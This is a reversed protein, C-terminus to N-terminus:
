LDAFGLQARAEVFEPKELVPDAYINRRIFFEMLLGEDPLPDDAARRLWELASAGEGVSLSALAHTAAGLPYETDIAELRDVIQQADERHGSVGYFEALSALLFTNTSEPGLLTEAIRLEAVATEPNGVTAEIQGLFSHSYPEDPILAIGERFRGLAEEYEGAWSLHLGLIFHGWGPALETLRRALRVGDDLRDSKLGSFNAYDILMDRENPSLEYAREYAEAAEAQRLYSEHVRALASYALGVTPDLELAREAHESALGARESRTPREESRLLGSITTAYLLAKYAHAHAFNPDLEIAQGLDRHMAAMLAPETSPAPDDVTTIARLYLAYAAPSDTPPTELSAQEEISFEARLANAINMAIDSQIAFIDAFERNFSDSWLHVDSDPDILQATVLVRGDAYRVSGEMVTEVNLEAAIEPISMGTDEYRLMSTRSIVNLARLKALQNLVEEHVGAAFYANDPDPSLNDFPLVAVSNPLTERQTDVAVADVPQEAPNIEVRYLVWGVAVVLLGILVWELNRNGARGPMDGGADRVVGEPTIEFAWTMILVIPFGIALLMITVTDFWDPLSLPENVVDVIQMILWAVILYVAAVQFVKRRKLETLLSTM